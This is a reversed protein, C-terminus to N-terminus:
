NVIVSAYYLWSTGRSNINCYNVLLMGDAPFDDNADAENIDPAIRAKNREEIEDILKQRLTKRIQGEQEITEDVILDITTRYAEFSSLNHLIEFYMKKETKENKSECCRSYIKGCEEKEKQTLKTSDGENEDEDSTGATEGEHISKTENNKEQEYRSRLLTLIEAVKTSEAAEEESQKLRTLEFGGDPGTKKSQAVFGEKRVPMALFAGFYGFIYYAALGAALFTAVKVRGKCRDPDEDSSYEGNAGDHCNPEGDCM